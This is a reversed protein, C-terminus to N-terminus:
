FMGELKEKDIKFDMFQLYIQTTAMSAHGMQKQVYKINSTSRQLFAAYSHRFIHPNVGGYKKTIQFIRQRTLRFIRDKKAIKFNNLCVRLLLLLSSPIDVNRPVNGKGKIFLQKEDFLIDNPTLNILESVRIGSDSLMSIILLDRHSKESAKAKIKTIEKRSLIKM